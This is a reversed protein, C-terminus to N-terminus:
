GKGTDPGHCCGHARHVLRARAVDVRAVERLVQAGPPAIPLSILVLRMCHDSCCSSNGLWGVRQEQLRHAQAESSCHAAAIRTDLAHISCM